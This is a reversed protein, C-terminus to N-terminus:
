CEHQRASLRCAGLSYLKLSDKDQYGILDINDLKILFKENEYTILFDLKNVTWKTRTNNAVIRKSLFVNFNQLFESLENVRVQRGADVMAVVKKDFLEFQGYDYGRRKFMMLVDTYRVFDPYPKCGKSQLKNITRIFNDRQSSTLTDSQWFALFEKQMSAGDKRIDGTFSLQQAFEKGFKSPELTFQAFTSFSVICFVLISFIRKM